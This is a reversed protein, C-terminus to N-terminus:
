SKELFRNIFLFIFLLNFRKDMKINILNKLKCDMDSFKYNYTFTYNSDISVVGTGVYFIDGKSNKLTYDYNDTHKKSKVIELKGWYSEYDSLSYYTMGVPIFYNTNLHYKKLWHAYLKKKQTIKKSPSYKIGGKKRTYWGNFAYGNRRVAPAYGRKKNIKHKITIKRKNRNNAAKFYGKGAYYTLSVKREANVSIPFAFTLSLATFLAITLTIIKKM